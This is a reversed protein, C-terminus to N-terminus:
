TLHLSTGCVFVCVYRDVCSDALRHCLHSCWEFSESMLLPAGSMIWVWEATSICTAVVGMDFVIFWARHRIGVTGMAGIQYGRIPPCLVPLGSLRPHPSGCGHRKLCWKQETIANKLCYILIREEWSDNTIGIKLWFVQVIKLLFISLIFIKLQMILLYWKLQVRQTLQHFLAKLASLLPSVSNSLLGEQHYFFTSFTLDVSWFSLCM